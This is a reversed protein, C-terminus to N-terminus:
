LVHWPDRLLTWGLCALHHHLPFVLKLQKWITASMVCTSAGEDIICRSIIANCITVPIQFAVSQLLPPHKSTDILFFILRDDYPHVAGLTNLLAKKKSHCSQLVELTSMAALSQVLNEVISYTHAVINSAANRRLPGKPM